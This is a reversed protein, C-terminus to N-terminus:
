CLHKLGRTWVDRRAKTQAQHKQQSCHFRFRPDPSRKNVVPKGCFHRDVNEIIGLCGGEYPTDLNARAQPPRDGDIEGTPFFPELTSDLPLFLIWYAPVLIYWVSQLVFQAVDKMDARSAQRNHFQAYKIFMPFWSVAFALLLYCYIVRSLTLVAGVAACVYAIWFVISTLAPAPRPTGIMAWDM